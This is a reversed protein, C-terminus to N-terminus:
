NKITSKVQKVAININTKNLPIRFTLNNYLHKKFKESSVSYYNLKQTIFEHLKPYISIEDKNEGDYSNELMILYYHIKKIKIGEKREVQEYTYDKFNISVEVLANKDTFTKHIANLNNLVFEYTDLQIEQISCKKIQSFTLNHMAISIILIIKKM